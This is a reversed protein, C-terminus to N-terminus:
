DSTCIDLKSSFNVIEICVHLNKGVSPYAFFFFRMYTGRVDEDKVSLSVTTIMDCCGQDSIFFRGHVSVEWACDHM